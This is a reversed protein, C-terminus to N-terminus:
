FTVPITLADDNQPEGSANAKQLELTGTSSTPQNIWTLKAEYSVFSETMWDSQAEAYGEAVRVDNNDTLIIPFSAEFYWYGRASGKITLPESVTSNPLPTDLFILDQKEVTNGLDETFTEGNHSCKRPYSEMVPNGAEVCEIFSTVETSTQSEQEAKIRDMILISVWAIIGILFIIFVLRQLKHM